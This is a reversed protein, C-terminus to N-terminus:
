LFPYLDFNIAAATRFLCSKNLRRPYGYSEDKNMNYRSIRSLNRTQFLRKHKHKDASLTSQMMAGNFTNCDRLSDTVAGSSFYEKTLLSEGCDAAVQLKLLSSTQKRKINESKKKLMLITNFQYFQSSLFWFM